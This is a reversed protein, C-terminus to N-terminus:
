LCVFFAEDFHVFRAKKIYAVLQYRMHCFQLWVNSGWVVAQGHAIIGSTHPESLSAGIIMHRVQAFTCAPTLLFATCATETVCFDKNTSCAVHM